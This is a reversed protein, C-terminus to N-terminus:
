FQSEWDEGTLWQFAIAACEGAANASDYKAAYFKFLRHYLRHNRWRHIRKSISKLIKRMGCFYWM